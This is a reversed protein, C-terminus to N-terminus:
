AIAGFGSYGTQVIKEGSRFRSLSFFSRDFLPQESGLIMDSNIRGLAPCLKFGHGSLGVCCYVGGLGIQSLDDIVPQHDPTVDYMGIYSSRFESSQLAPIRQAASQSIRSIYDYDVNKPCNDPDIGEIDSDSDLSGALMLVKGDPKYYAKKPLDWVITKTGQYDAPRKLVVVSHGTARIPLLDENKVGSKMLLNNTWVNTCIIVKSCHIRSNDALLISNVRGNDHELKVVETNLITDAGLQRAKTAFSGATRSPDAYGSEKELVIKDCGEFDVDPYTKAAESPEISFTNVGIRRLMRLNSNMVERHEKSCLILIGSDVFGADGVSGFNQFAKLSYLAIKAVLETSYHTRIFAVSLSTTGSAVEGRDILVVRQGRSALHYATSAGTSGAGIM